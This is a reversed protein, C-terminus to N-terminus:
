NGWNGDGVRIVAVPVERCQLAVPGCTTEEVIAYFDVAIWDAGVCEIEEVCQENAGLPLRVVERVPAVIEGAIQVFNACGRNNSGGIPNGSFIVILAVRIGEVSDQGRLLRRVNFEIHCTGM